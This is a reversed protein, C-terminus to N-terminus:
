TRYDANERVYEYSLDSGLAKASFPGDGLDISIEVKRDHAPYGAREPPLMAERLSASIAQEKEQDLTFRGRAFVESGCMRIITSGTDIGYGNNGMFDGLAMIIRGVNPDNGFVATKVLPSNVVAKSAGDAIEGTRAGSVTVDMVHSTGEGNRVIDEAMASCVEALSRSFAEHDVGTVRKSSFVLVMDSTSQDGDVSIRNFTTGCVESLIRQLVDRPVLIDTLIFVLMTAMNPEIMGAGKAVAVIRGNGLSADRVKPFSDTTMIAQAVRSLSEPQVTAMLGPLAAVIEDVPLRWGIVGTSSPFYQEPNGGDLAALEAALTEAAEEGGPAFVNAVKNNILIGKATSGRLRKRGIVVPAGPFANRTFVGAFSDTPENLLITSLNMKFQKESPIERPKFTLSTSGARFGAPLVSRRELADLYEGQNGYNEM